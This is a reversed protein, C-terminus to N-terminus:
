LPASLVCCFTHNFRHFVDANVYVADYLPHAEPGENVAQHPLEAEFAPDLVGGGAHLQLQLARPLRQLGKKPGQGPARRQQRDDLRDFRVPAAREFSVRVEANEVAAHLRLAVREDGRVDTEARVAQPLQQVRLVPAVAIREDVAGVAAGAKGNDFVHGIVPGQGGHPAKGHARVAVPLVVIDFVAAVVGLRVATRDAAGMHEVAVGLPPLKRAVGDLQGPLGDLGAADDGDLAQAPHVQGAAAVIRGDGRAQTPALLPVFLREREHAPIQLGRPAQALDAWRLFRQQAAIVPGDDQQFLPRRPEIVQALVSAQADHQGLRESM